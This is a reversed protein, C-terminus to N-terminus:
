CRLSAVATAAVGEGRGTIGLGDTTTAGVSVPAGLAASLVAPETMAALHTVQHKFGTM